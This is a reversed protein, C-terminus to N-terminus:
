FKKLLLTIFLYIILIDIIAISSHNFDIEPTAWVDRYYPIPFGSVTAYGGMMFGMFYDIILFIIISAPLTFSSLKLLKKIDM